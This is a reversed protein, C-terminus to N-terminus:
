RCLVVYVFLARLFGLRRPIQLVTTLDTALLLLFFFLGAGLAAVGKQEQGIALM